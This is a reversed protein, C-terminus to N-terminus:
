SVLTILDFSWKTSQLVRQFKKKTTAIFIYIYIVSKIRSNIRKWHEDFDLDNEYCKENEIYRLSLYAFRVFFYFCYLRKRRIIIILYSKIELFFEISISRNKNKNNNNLM